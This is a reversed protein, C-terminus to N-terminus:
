EDELKQKLGFIENVLKVNTEGLSRCNAQLKAFDSIVDVQPFLHSVMVNLVGREKQAEIGDQYDYLQSLANGLIAEVSVIDIPDLNSSGWGIVYAALEEKTYKM